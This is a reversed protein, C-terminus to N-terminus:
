IYTSYGLYGRRKEKGIILKKESIVYKIKYDLNNPMCIKLVTEIKRRKSSGPLLDRLEGIPVGRVVVMYCSDSEVFSNGVLSERGLRGAMSGLRYQIAEPIEYESKLNEVIEFNYGFILKLAKESLSPNGAWFHFTPLLAVWVLAENIQQSNFDSEYNFLRLFNLIHELDVFGHNYKLIEFRALADHRIISADFASMLDRSRDEWEGTREKGGVLGYFFQYPMFDVVSPYGVKLMIATDEKLVTGPAPSQENVEGKYNEYEGVALLDIRNIDVDMKALVNLATTYHFPFRRSCFDPMIKAGEGM